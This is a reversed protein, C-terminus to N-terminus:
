VKFCEETAFLKAMSCLAVSNPDKSDLAVAANRVMLRGAVLQTAMEALRFQLYQPSWIMSSLNFTLVYFFHENNLKFLSLTIIPACLSPHSSYRLSLGILTEFCFKSFTKVINVSQAEGNTIGDWYSVLLSMHFFARNSDRLEM